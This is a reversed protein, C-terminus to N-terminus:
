NYAEATVIPIESEGNQCIVKIAANGYYYGLDIGEWEELSGRYEIDCEISTFANEGIRVLGNGLSVNELDYCYGFAFDGIECLSDPLKAARLQECSIFASDAIYELGESFEFSTLKNCGRFADAGIRKIVGSYTVSNLQNCNEFTGRRIETINSGFAVSKLKRCNQFAYDGLYILSESLIIKGLGSCDAFAAEGISKLNKNSFGIESLQTCSAFACDGVTEVDPLLSLVISRCGFFAYDGVSTVSSPLTLLSPLSENNYLAYDGISTVSGDDPITCKGIGAVLTGSAIEIICNDQSRFYTGEKGNIEVVSDEHLNSPFAGCAIVKTDKHLLINAPQNINKPEVSILFAYPNEKTGIYQAWHNFGRIALSTGDFACKGIFEISETLSIDYLFSCGYFAFDGIKKVSKSLEVNTLRNCDYFTYENIFTIGKGIKVTKLATCANFAYRDIKKVSDPIVMSELSQCMSFASAGIETVFSGLDVKSLSTCNGFAYDGIRCAGGEFVVTSLVTCGSFSAYGIYEVSKPISLKSLAANEVFAYDAIVRTKNHIAISEINPETASILVAYPNRTNGLYKAGGSTSYELKECGAFADAGVKTICDPITVQKLMDLGSFAGSAIETIPIGNYSSPLTIALSKCNKGSEIIYHSEDESLALQLGHKGIGVNQSPSIIGLLAGLDLDAEDREPIDWKYNDDFCSCLSFLCLIALLIASARIFIGKGRKM